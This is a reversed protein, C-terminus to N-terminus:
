CLKQRQNKAVAEEEMRTMKNIATRDSKSSAFGAVQTNKLGVNKLALGISAGIPGMGLIAIKEM